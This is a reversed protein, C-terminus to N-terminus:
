ERDRERLLSFAVPHVEGKFMGSAIIPDGEMFARAAEEDEAYFLVIGPGEMDTCPGAMVVRGERTAEQLRAFHESFAAKEEETLTELLDARRPEEIFYVWGARERNGAAGFHGAFRNMVAVWAVSFYEYLNDWGKSEGWGLQTLTVRVVDPAVEDFEVVVQTREQRLTGFQPPANWTFAVMREPLYSIVECGESGRQGEPSEPVWQIEFRGGRELEITAPVGMVETFGEGTTWARYVDGIPAAILRSVRLAREGDPLTIKVDEGRATAGMAAPGSVVMVVGAVVLAVVGMVRRM